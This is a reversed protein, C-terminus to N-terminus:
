GEISKFKNSIDKSAVGLDFRNIDDAPPLGIEKRAIQNVTAQRADYTPQVAKNLIEDTQYRAQKTM